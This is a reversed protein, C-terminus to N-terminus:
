RKLGLFPLIMYTNNMEINSKCEHHFCMSVIKVRCQKVCECAFLFSRCPSFSMAFAISKMSSIEKIQRQLSFFFSCSCSCSVLVLTDFLHYLWCSSNKEKKKRKPRLYISAYLDFRVVVVFCCYGHGDFLRVIRVFAKGQKSYGTRIPLPRWQRHVSLSLQISTWAYVKM